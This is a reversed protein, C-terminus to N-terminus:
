CSSSRGSGSSFRERCRFVSAFDASAQRLATIEHPQLAPNVDVDLHSYKVSGVKSEPNCDAWRQLDKEALRQQLAADFSFDATEDYSQLPLRRAKRHVDCKVDLENIQSVGLLLYTSSPLHDDTQAVLAPITRFSYFGDAIDVLGEETYTAVGAGTYVTEAIPRRGYVIDRHAVTIDSYSDIGVLISRTAFPDDSHPDRVSCFANVATGGRFSSATSAYHKATRTRGHGSRRSRPKPSAYSAMPSDEDSDETNPAPTQAPRSGEPEHRLLHDPDLARIFVTRHGPRHDAHPVPENDPDAHMATPTPLTWPTAPAPAAALADLQAQRWPPIQMPPPLPRINDPAANIDENRLICYTADFFKVLSTLTGRKVPRAGPDALLM